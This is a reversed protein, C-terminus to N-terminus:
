TIQAGLDDIRSSKKELADLRSEIDSVKAEISKQGLKIGKIDAALDIQLKSCQISRTHVDKLLRFLAGIQESPNSTRELPLGLALNLIM